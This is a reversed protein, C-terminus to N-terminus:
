SQYYLNIFFIDLLQATTYPTLGMKVKAELSLLQRYSAILDPLKFFRAQKIFKFAQWSPLDAFGAEGLDAAIILYRWQRVLMSLIFEASQSNAVSHFMSLVQNVPKEGVSDLFKFLIAPLQCFIIKARSFKKLQAKPIEKQEWLVIEPLTKANSLFVLIQEKEASKGGAFLNEIIILKNQGFLSQSDTATLIDSLAARGGDFYIKEDFEHKRKLEELAKRSGVIDDGHILTIM